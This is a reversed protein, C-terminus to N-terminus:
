TIKYYYPLTLNTQLTDHPAIEGFAYRYDYYYYNVFFLVSRVNSFSIYLHKIILIHVCHTLFIHSYNKKITVGHSSDNLKYKEQFNNFHKGFGFSVLM